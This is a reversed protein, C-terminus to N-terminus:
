PSPRVAVFLSTEDRGISLFDLRYESAIAHLTAYPIASSYWGGEKRNMLCWLGNGGLRIVTEQFLAAPGKPVANLERLLIEEATTPSAGIDFWRGAAAILNDYTCRLADDKFADIEEKPLGAKRAAQQCLGLVAFPNPKRRLLEVRVNPYKPGAQQDATPQM